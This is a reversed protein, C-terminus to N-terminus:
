SPDNLDRHWILLFREPWITTIRTNVLGAAAALQEIEKRNFAGEVSRIGDVHVVPSRSLVKTGLRALLWGLPTRLLDSILILSPKAQAMKQLLDVAQQSDLHHLFLSSIIVDFKPLLQEKLVDLQTFQADIRWRQATSRAHEIATPSIDCGMFQIKRSSRRALHALRCIVDAGGCAIDLVHLPRGGRDYFDRIPKWLTAAARSWLNIRALGRLAQRHANADLDPRDMCEPQRYRVAINPVLRM